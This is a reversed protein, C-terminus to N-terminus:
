GPSGRCCRGSRRSVRRRGARDAPAPRRDTRRRSRRARRVPGSRARPGHRAHERHPDGGLPGPPRRPPRHVRAAAGRSVREGQRRLWRGRRAVPRAGRRRDPRVEGGARRAALAAGPDVGLAGPTRRDVGRGRRAGRASVARRAPEGDAPERGRRMRRVAIRGHRVPPRDGREHRGRSVAAIDSDLAEEADVLVPLPDLDIWVLDAADAGQYKEETVIAVVPEGVFRVVDVALLPRAHAQPVADAALPRGREPLIVDIVGPAARAEDVDISRSGRTLWRRGCTPSGHRGKTPCTTSMRAASPSSSRTRRRVVRTGMISM